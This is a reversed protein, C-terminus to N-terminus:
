AETILIMTFTSDSMTSLVVDFNFMSKMLSDSVNQSTKKEELLFHFMFFVYMKFTSKGENPLNFKNKFNTLHVYIINLADFGFSCIM